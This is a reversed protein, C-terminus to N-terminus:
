NIKNIRKERLLKEVLNGIYYPPELESKNPHKFGIRHVTEHALTNALDYSDWDDKRLSKKNILIPGTEIGEYAMTKNVHYDKFGIIGGKLQVSTGNLQIKMKNVIEKATAGKWAEVYVGSKLELIFSDLQQEFLPSNITYIVDVVAIRYDNVSKELIESQEFTTNVGKISVSIKEVTQVKACSFLVFASVLYLAKIKM